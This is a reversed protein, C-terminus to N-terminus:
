KKLNISSIELLGYADTLQDKLLKPKSEFDAHNKFLRITMDEDKYTSLVVCEERFRDFFKANCVERITDIERTRLNEKRSKTSLLKRFGDVRRELASRFATNFREKYTDVEVQYNEQQELTADGDLEKPYPVEKQVESVLQNGFERVNYAAILEVLEEDTLHSVDPLYVEREEWEPDFLNDRLEKSFRTAAVRAINMDADTPIRMWVKLKDGSVTNLEVEKSWEFLKSIDVDSKEPDLVIDPAEIDETKKKKAM